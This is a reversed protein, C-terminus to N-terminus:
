SEKKNDSRDNKASVARHEKPQNFILANGRLAGRCRIQGSLEKKQMVGTQIKVFFAPRFM